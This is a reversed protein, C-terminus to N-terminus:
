VYAERAYVWAKAALKFRKLEVNSGQVGVAVKERPSTDVYGNAPM